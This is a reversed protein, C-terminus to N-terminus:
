ASVSEDAPRAQWNIFMVSGVVLFHEFNERTIPDIIVTASLCYDNRFIYFVFNQTKESIRGPLLIGSCFRNM